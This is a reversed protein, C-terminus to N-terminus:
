GAATLAATLGRVTQAGYRVSAIRGGSDLIVTAPLNDIGFAAGTDGSADDLIPFSWGHTRLFSHWGGGDDYDVGVLRGRGAPSRAVTEVANAEVRCDTCWSAWFVVAAPHGRLDALTVAGGSLARAPLAPAPRRAARGGSTLGVALAAAAAAGIALRLTLRTRRRAFV